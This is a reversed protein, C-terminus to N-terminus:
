QYSKTVHYPRHENWVNERYWRTWWIDWVSHSPNLSRSRRHSAHVHRHSLAICVTVFSVTQLSIKQELDSSKRRINPMGQDRLLYSTMWCAVNGKASPKVAERQNESTRKEPCFVLYECNNKHCSMIPAICEWNFQAIKSHSTMGSPFSLLGRLKSLCYRLGWFQGKWDDEVCLVTCNVWPIGCM